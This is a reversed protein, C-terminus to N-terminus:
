FCESINAYAGRFYLLPQGGTQYDIAEVRGIIIDHDGGDVVRHVACELRALADGILPVGHANVEHAVGQWKDDLRSAFQISVQRQGEQLINIAFHGERFAAAGSARKDLCFLVLPPDLSVSSFASVTVGVPRKAADCTTAVTVGSAFCGLAKRFTREDVQM